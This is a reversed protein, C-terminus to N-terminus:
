LEDFSCHKAVAFHKGDLLDHRLLSFEVGKRYRRVAVSAPKGDLVSHWPVYDM